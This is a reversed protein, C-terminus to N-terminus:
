EDDDREFTLQEINALIQGVIRELFEQDTEEDYQELVDKETHTKDGRYGSYIDLRLKKM